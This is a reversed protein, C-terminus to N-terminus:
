KRKEEIEGTLYWSYAIGGALSIFYGGSSSLLPEGTLACIGFIIFAGSLFYATEETCFPPRRRQWAARFILFFMVTIASFGIAGLDLLVTFYSNHYHIFHGMGLDNIGSRDLLMEATGPGWGLLPKEQWSNWFDQYMRLRVGVSDIPLNETDGSLIQVITDFNQHIRERVVDLSGVILLSVLVISVIAIALALQRVPKRESKRNWLLWMALGIPIVALAALWAARSQSFLLSLFSVSSALCWLSTGAIMAGLGKVRRLYRPALFVLGWLVIASWTGLNVSSHGFSARYEGSLFVQFQDGLNPWDLRFFIRALFGATTLTMAWPILTRCDRSIWASLLLLAFFGRIPWNQAADLIQEQLLPFESLALLTCGVLYLSFAASLLLMPDRLLVDWCRRKSLASGCLLLILAKNALAIDFFVAFSFLGLGGYGLAFSFCERRDQRWKNVLTEFMSLLM